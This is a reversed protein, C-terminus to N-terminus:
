KSRRTGSILSLSLLMLPLFLAAYMCVRKLATIYGLASALGDHRNPYEQILWAISLNESLDPILYGMPLLLLSLKVSPPPPRKGVAYLALLTLFATFVLPFLMDMSLMMRLYAERGAEGFSTLRQYVGEASFAPQLDLIQRGGNKSM